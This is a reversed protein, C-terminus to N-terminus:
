SRMKKRMWIRCDRLETFDTTSESARCWSLCRCLETYTLTKTGDKERVANCQEVKMYQKRIIYNRLISRTKEEFHRLM